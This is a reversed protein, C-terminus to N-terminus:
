ISRMPRRVAGGLASRWRVRRIRRPAPACVSVAAVISILEM